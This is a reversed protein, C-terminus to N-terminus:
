QRDGADFPGRRLVMEILAVIIALAILWRSVPSASDTAAPFDATSALKGSGGSMVSALAADPTSRARQCPGSLSARLKVFSARLLMDGTSDLPILVSKRCTSGSDRQIAAADGDVWRALVRAGKLSDDTFRWRREFAGVLVNGNAVVAGVTDIRNRQVAFEPRASDLFAAEVARVSSSDPPAARVRVLRARGPWQNRITATARDREPTVLPSVVVLEVSDAGARVRQGARLAGVMGASISGANRLGARNALSDVSPVAWASTDFAILEDGPRLLARASDRVEAIDAVAGSVDAVIVRVVNERTPTLVPRALAIGVLMIALVRLALLLLDSLRLSRERAAVPADPVFRATPFPVSRPRRTVIFHLAIVVCAAAGAALLFGPAVFTM